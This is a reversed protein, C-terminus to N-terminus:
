PREATDPPLEALRLAVQGRGWDESVSLVMVTVADANRRTRSWHPLGPGLRCWDGPGLGAAALTCVVDYVV